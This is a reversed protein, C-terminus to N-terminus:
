VVGPADEGLEGSRAKELADAFASESLVVIMVPEADDDLGYRYIWADDSFAFHMKALRNSDPAIRLYAEAIPLLEAGADLFAELGKGEARTSGEVEVKGGDPRELHLSFMTIPPRDSPQRRQGVMEVLSEKFRKYIGALDAGVEKGVEEGAKTFFGKMFWAAAASPMGLALVLLADPLVSFRVAGDFAKVEGVEGALQQLAEIDGHKYSRADTTLELVGEEVSVPTLESLKEDLLQAPHLVAPITGDFIEMETELAVEGDPLDVLAGGLVRGVPPITPDHELNVPKPSDQLQELMGEVAERTITYEGHTGSRIIQGRLRKRPGRRELDSM